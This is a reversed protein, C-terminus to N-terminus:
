SGLAGKLAASAEVVAKRGGDLITPMTFFSHIQGDYRSLTVPVGAAELRKAYAEGEDRLPDYDATIVLAPPLGALDDTYMPSAVPDKADGEDGLYHGIFWEMSRATLLYGEGNQRVSPFSLLLDTTPYVLLQFAIPPGGRDRALISTVTALNGGASDGGVALRSGDAGLTSAQGALWSAAAYAAEPAAPFPHEPALPYDVSAVVVGAGACLERASADSTEVDGIVFGGGHLWVLLPRPPDSPGATPPRYLRVPIPGGPGPAVLDEVAGVEPGPGVMQCLSRFLERAEDPETDAVDPGGLAALQGLLVEVQPDLPM